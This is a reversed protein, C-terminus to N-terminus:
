APMEPPPTWGVSRLLQRAREQKAHHEALDDATPQPPPENGNSGTADAVPPRTTKSAEQSPIPHSPPENPEVVISREHKPAESARHKPQSRIEGSRLGGLRGAISKSHRRSEVDNRTPQYDKYDHIRVGNASWEISNQAKLRKLIATLKRHHVGRFVHPLDKTPIFGDTLYRNCYALAAVWWGYAAVGARIFKPHDPATDEVRVWTM